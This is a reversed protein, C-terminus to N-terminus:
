KSKEESEQAQATRWILKLEGAVLGSDRGASVSRLAADTLGPARALSLAEVVISGPFANTIDAVFSYIPGDFPAGVKLGIEEVSLRYAATKPQALAAGPASDAVANFTWQVASLGHNRAAEQMRVIATRRTHPILRDSKLLAEYTAGNEAVYASDNEATSIAAITQQVQANLQTNQAIADDRATALTLLLILFALASGLLVFVSVLVNRPILSLIRKM